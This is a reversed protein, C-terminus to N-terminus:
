LTELYHHSRVATTFAATADTLRDGAALLAGGILLIASSGYFDLLEPTREVTMDGAPVPVAPLLLHQDAAEHM